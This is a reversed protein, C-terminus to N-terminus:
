RGQGRQGREGQKNLVLARLDEWQEETPGLESGAGLLDLYEATAPRASTRPLQARGEAVMQAVRLILEPAVGKAQFHAEGRAVLWPVLADVGEPVELHLVWCRRLFAAPLSREENTTIIVLPPLADAAMNVAGGPVAFRGQGLADLLGNPISADAKDIEDILVVCGRAPTWGAPTPPTCESRSAEDLQKAATAWNMGWWLPGPTVFRSLRVNERAQEAALGSSGCLAGQVQAEALRAVEDVLYLLDRTETRADVTHTVLARGLGVAAARALQSKGTGPEGRLLLPRQTVLAANIALVHAPEFIHASDELGAFADLALPRGIDITLLDDRTPKRM